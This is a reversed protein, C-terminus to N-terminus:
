VDEDVELIYKIIKMIKDHENASIIQELTIYRVGLSEAMLKGSRKVEEPYDGGCVITSIGAQYIHM